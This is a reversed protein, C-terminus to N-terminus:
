LYATQDHKTYFKATILDNGVLFRLGQMMVINIIATPCPTIIPFPTGFSLDTAEIENYRYLDWLYTTNVGRM